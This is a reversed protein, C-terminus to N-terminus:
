VLTVLGNKEHFPKTQALTWVGLLTGRIDNRARTEGWGRSVSAIIRAGRGATADLLGMSISVM